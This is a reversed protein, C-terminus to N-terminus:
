RKKVSKSKSGAKSKPDPEPTSPATTAPESAPPEDIIPTFKPTQENLGVMWRDGIKILSIVEMSAVSVKDNHHKTRILVHVLTDTEMAVSLIRMKMSDRVKKLVEPDVPTRDKLVKHYTTYFTIGSMKAIDELEKVGFKSLVLKEDDLTATKKVRKVYDDRLETLSQPEVLKGSEEWNQELMCRLYDRVVKVSPHNELDASQGQSRAPLSSLVGLTLLLIFLSPLFRTLLIM